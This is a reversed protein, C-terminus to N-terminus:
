GLFCTGMRGEERARRLGITDVSGEAPLDALNTQLVELHNTIDRTAAQRAIWLLRNCERMRESSHMDWGSGPLEYVPPISEPLRDLTPICSILKRLYEYNCLYALARRELLAKHTHEWFLDFADVQAELYNPPAHSIVTGRLNILWAQYLDPITASRELGYSRPQSRRPRHPSKTTETTPV